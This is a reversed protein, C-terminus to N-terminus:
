FGENSTKPFLWGACPLVRGFSLREFLFVGLKNDNGFPIQQQRGGCDVALGGIAVWAADGFVTWV